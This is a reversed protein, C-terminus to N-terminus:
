LSTVIILIGNEPFVSLCIQKNCHVTHRAIRNTTINLKDNGFYGKQRRIVAYLGKGDNDSAISEIADRKM